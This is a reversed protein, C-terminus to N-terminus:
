ATSGFPGIAGTPHLPAPDGPGNLDIVDRDIAADPELLSPDVSGGIVTPGTRVEAMDPEAKSTSVLATLLEIARDIRGHHDRDQENQIRLQDTVTALRAMADILEVDRRALQHHLEALERHLSAIEARTADSHQQVTESQQM